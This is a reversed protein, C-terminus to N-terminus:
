SSGLCWCCCCLLLLLLLVAMIDDCGGGRMSRSRMVICNTMTVAFSRLICVGIIVVTDDVYWLDGSSGGLGNLADCM